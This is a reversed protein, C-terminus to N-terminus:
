SPAYWIPSAWAREEITRDAGPFEGCRKHTRCVYSSWRPTPVEIIRAYWYAVQGPRFNEDTWLVCAEREGNKATWINTVAESYVGKELRGSVIEIRALPTKDASAAVRFQPKGIRGKLEGGMPVGTVVPTLAGGSTCALGQKTDAAHFRVGIRPGSTGYVERRKLAAFISERTNEEAWVAVLGGPSFGLRNMSTEFTGGGLGSGQWLDEDAFGAAATHTDTSGIFGLQLPNTPQGPLRSAELGRRLLGRAYTSRMKEWDTESFETLPKPRSRSVIYNEFACDSSSFRQAFPELCESSGKEQTIEILREYRTRQELLRETETEVDFSNGDGFNTNHPITIAECGDEARCQTDLENWLQSLNPYRIYDIPRRTVKDGAFIVNRHTHSYSPTASWEFGILATFNCPSNASNAQAQARQWQNDLAELCNRPDSRCIDAPQPEANTITPNVYEKFVDSGAAKGGLERLRACYPHPSFGPESCVHMLDLWEAHDTVAMFDLPRELPPPSAADKFSQGRGYAYAEAPTRATGFGYADLSYATHVHLDGWYIKKEGYIAGPCPRDRLAGRQKESTAATTESPVGCATVILYLGAALFHGAFRKLM